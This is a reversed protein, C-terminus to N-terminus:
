GEVSIQGKMNVHRRLFLSWNSSLDFKRPWRANHHFRRSRISVNHKTEDENCVNMNTHPCVFLERNVLFLPGHGLDVGVEGAHLGDGLAVADAVAAQLQENGLRAFALREIALSRPRGWPQGLLAFVVDDRPDDRHLVPGVGHVPRVDEVLHVFYADLEADGAERVVPEGSKKPSM